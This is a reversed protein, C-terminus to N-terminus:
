DTEIRYCVLCQTTETKPSYSFALSRHGCDRLPVEWLPVFDQVDSIEATMEARIMQWDAVERRWSDRMLRVLSM